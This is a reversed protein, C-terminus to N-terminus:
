PSGAVILNTNNIWVLWTVLGNAISLVMLVSLYFLVYRNFSSDELEHELDKGFLRTQQRRYAQKIKGYLKLECRILLLVFGALATALM